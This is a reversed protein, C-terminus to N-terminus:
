RIKAAEVNITFDQDITLRSIQFNDRTLEDRIKRKEEVVNLSGNIKKNVDYGLAPYEYLQGKGLQLIDEIHTLDSDAILFDGNAIGTIDKSIM